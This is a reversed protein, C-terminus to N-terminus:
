QAFQRELVPAPETEPTAAAVTGINAREHRLALHLQALMIAFWTFYVAAAVWFSIFGNWAFPGDVFFPILSGTLSGFAMFLSYWGVWRPFVPTSNKDSFIACATSVAQLAGPQWLGAWAMWTVHNLLQYNSDAMDPRQLAVLLFPGFVMMLATTVISAGLQTTAAVTGIGDVRRLREYIAAGFPIFMTGGVILCIAGVRKIDIDHHFYDATTMADYPGPPPLFQGCVFGIGMFTMLSWGAAIGFRTASRSPAANGSMTIYGRAATQDGGLRKVPVAFEARAASFWLLTDYIMYRM